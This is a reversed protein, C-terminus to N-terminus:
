STTTSNAPYLSATTGPRCRGPSSSGLASLCSSSTWSCTSSISRAATSSQFRDLYGQDVRLYDLGSRYDFRSKASHSRRAAYLYLPAALPCRWPDLLDAFGVGRTLRITVSVHDYLAWNPFDEDGVAALRDGSYNVLGSYSVSCLRPRSTTGAATLYWCCCRATRQASRDTAQSRELDDLYCESELVSDYFYWALQLPVQPDLLGRLSSGSLDLWGLAGLTVTATCNLLPSWNLITKENLVAM